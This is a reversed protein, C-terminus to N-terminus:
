SLQVVQGTEASRRAADAVMLAYVSDAVSVYLPAGDWLHNLVATTDRAFLGRQRAVEVSSSDAEGKVLTGQEGDFFIGGQAGHIELRRRSEWLTNGKGYIVEALVGSAFRLHATCLCATFCGSYAGSSPLNELGWYRNQCHVAVVPGFLHTLRHLRSLAGMLPFGFDHLNYTWKQPVSRQGNLTSYRVYFPSGIQPLTAMAAQHVGGLLEIHEVHLLKEHARALAMLSEAESVELTLPYEVVVHKGAQLAAHAIAGHEQNRTSIVILDLDDQEVLTQWAPSVGIHHTQSFDRTRDSDRGFVTVLRSRPDRNLAEARSKAAYGTGVLGIRLPSSISSQSGGVADGTIFV